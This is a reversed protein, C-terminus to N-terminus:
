ACSRIKLRHRMVFRHLAWALIFYVASLIWLAFYCDKVQWLSSGNGNMKIFGEVGWTVPLIDSLCRWVDPMAFRPWTLGSLFLFFISTVVWILFIEERERVLPQICFGLFIAALSMPLLFALIEWINGAMPFSFILPVYHILFIVPVVMVFYYCLTKGILTASVSRSENIPYYGTKRPSEHAAGGMMGIALVICQHLILILVGPMVFSDFGAQINGMNASNVPLPDGVVISEAMPLYNNITEQQIETGIAQAVNTTAVVFGRYRLLLSMECYMVANSKKGSNLNHGYGSPIELIAYCKHSDMAKRAEPLDAAYGISRAEQTADIMRVLERSRSSRDHDVVVYKVDRVVEPNYILSYVIPYVLPLFAFFLLVGPDHFILRFETAFVRFIQKFYNDQNKM